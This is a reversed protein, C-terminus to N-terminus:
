NGSAGFTADWAAKATAFGDQQVAYATVVIQANEYQAVDANGTLKFTKFVVLDVANGTVAAQTKYYIGPYDTGLATWGKATVQDAITTADESAAIGDEIKVFVYCAESGPQVHVTPDKDYNHGPILKYSNTKVRDGTTAKGNADVPAEDLTIEIQGITFTNTVKDQSTLYALTGMVAIVAVLALAAVGLVIKKGKM